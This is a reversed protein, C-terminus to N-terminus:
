LVRYVTYRIFQITHTEVIQGLLYNSFNTVRIEATKLFKWKKSPMETVGPGRCVVMMARSSLVLERPGSSTVVAVFVLGSVPESSLSSPKVTWVVGEEEESDDVVRRPETRKGRRGGTLLRPGSTRGPSCPTGREVVSLVGSVATGLMRLNWSMKLRRRDVVGGDFLGTLSSLLSSSPSSDFSVAVPTSSSAVSSSKPPSEPACFDVLPALPDLVASGCPM